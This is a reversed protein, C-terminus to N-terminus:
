SGRFCPIFTGEFVETSPITCVIESFAVILFNSYLSIYYHIYLCSFDESGGINYVM